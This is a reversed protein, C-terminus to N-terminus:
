GDAYCRGPQKYRRIKNCHPPGAVQTYGAFEFQQHTPLLEAIWFIAGAKLRGSHYGLRREIEGLSQGQVNIQRTVFGGMKKQTGIRPNM